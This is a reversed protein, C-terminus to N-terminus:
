ANTKVPLLNTAFFGGIGPLISMSMLGAFIEFWGGIALNTNLKDTGLFLVITGGIIVVTAFGSLFFHPLRTAFNTAILGFVIGFTTSAVLTSSPHFGGVMPATLVQYVVIGIFGGAFNLLFSKLKQM